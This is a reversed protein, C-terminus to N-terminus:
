GSAGPQPTASPHIQREAEQWRYRAEWQATTLRCTVLIRQATGSLAQFQVATLQDPQIALYNLFSAVQDPESFVELHWRPERDSM